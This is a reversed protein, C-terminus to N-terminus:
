ISDDLWELIVYKDLVCGKDRVLCVYRGKETPIGTQWGFKYHNMRQFENPSITHDTQNDCYKQLDEVKIYKECM